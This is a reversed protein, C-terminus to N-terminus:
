AASRQEVADMHQVLRIAVAALQEWANKEITRQHDRRARDAAAFQELAAHPAPPETLRDARAIIRDLVRDRAVAPLVTVSAGRRRGPRRNPMEHGADEHRKIAKSVTIRACGLETAIAREGVSRLRQAVWKPDDM